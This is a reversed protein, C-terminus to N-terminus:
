RPTSVGVFPRLIYKFSNHSSSFLISHKMEDSNPQVALLVKFYAGTSSSKCIAKRQLYLYVKLVSSLRGYTATAYLHIIVSTFTWMGFIVKLDLCRLKFIFTVFTHVHM